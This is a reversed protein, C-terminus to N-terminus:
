NFYIVVTRENGFDFWAHDETVHKEVAEPDTWDILKNIKNVAMKVARDNCKDHAEWGSEKNAAEVGFSTAVHYNGRCGCMCGQRGTYVIKVDTFKIPNALAM